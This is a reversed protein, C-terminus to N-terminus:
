CDLPNKMNLSSKRPNKRPIPPDTAEPKLNSSKMRHDAGGALSISPNPCFNGEFAPVKGPSPPFFSRRKLHNKGGRGWFAKPQRSFGYTDAIKPNLARESAIAPFPAPVMEFASTERGRERPLNARTKPQRQGIGRGGQSPKKVWLGCNGGRKHLFRLGERVGRLFIDLRVFNSFNAFGM